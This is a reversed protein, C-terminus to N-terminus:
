YPARGIINGAPQYHCVWIQAREDQCVVAGCGVTATAAWVVQTYHGCVKGSACRNSAQDYYVRERAWADVVHEPSIKQVEIVGSSAQWGCAWFLNEGYQGHTASHRLQCQYTQQLAEAWAQASAALNPSYTLPPAGVMARWRNHAAVMRPADIDLTKVPSQKAGRVGRLGLSPPRIPPQVLRGEEQVYTFAPLPIVVCGQISLVPILSCVLWLRQCSYFM